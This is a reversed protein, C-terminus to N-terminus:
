HGGWGIKDVKRSQRKKPLSVASRNSIRKKEALFTMSLATERQESRVAILRSTSVCGLVAEVCRGSGQSRRGMRPLTPIKMGVDPVVDPGGDEPRASGVEEEFV